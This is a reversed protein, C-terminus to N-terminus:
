RVPNLRERDWGPSGPRLAESRAAPLIRGARNRVTRRGTKRATACARHRRRPLLASRRPCGSGPVSAASSRVCSSRRRCWCGQRGACWACPADSWLWHSWRHPHLHGPGKRAACLMNKARPPPGSASAGRGPEEAAPLPKRHAAMETTRSMDCHGARGLWRTSATRHERPGDQVSDDTYGQGGDRDDPPVPDPEHTTDGSRWSKNEPDPDPFSTQPDRNRPSFSDGTQAPGPRLDAGVIPRVFDCGSLRPLATKVSLV